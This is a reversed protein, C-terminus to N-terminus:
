FKFHHRNFLASLMTMVLIVSNLILLLDTSGASKYLIIPLMVLFISDGVNTLVRGVLM